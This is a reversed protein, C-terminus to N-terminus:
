HISVNTEPSGIVVLTLLAILEPPPANVAGPIHLASFTHLSRYVTKHRSYTCGTTKASDIFVQGLSPPVLIVYLDLYEEIFKIALPSFKHAKHAHISFWSEVDWRLREPM